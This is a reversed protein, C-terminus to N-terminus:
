DGTMTFGRRESETYYGESRNPGVPYSTGLSFADLYGDPDVLADVNPADGHTEVSWTVAVGPPVAFGDAFTPLEIETRSTLVFMGEFTADFELHWLFTRATQSLTSWSYTSAPTVVGGPQPAVLTVSRPVALTVDSQGFTINERHAIAYPPFGFSGDAAGFVYSAGDLQPVFYVFEDTDVSDDILPLAAGDALRLAVYNSRALAGGTASGAIIGTLLDPNFPLDFGVSASAGDRASLPFSQYAEYFVPPDFPTDRWTLLAHITGTLRDPGSWSPAGLFETNATTEGDVFLADPSQFALVAYRGEDFVVNDFSVALSSASREVLASYVQLTPDSRTLGEYVYGYHAQGGSRIMNVMLSATYPPEAGTISFEGAANTTATTAGITVALNPVPRRFFDIVRGNVVNGGPSQADTAGADLPLELPAGGLGASTDSGANGANGPLNNGGATGAAGANGPGRGQAGGVNSGASGAGGLPRPTESLDQIGLVNQCALACIIGACLWRHRVVISAIM